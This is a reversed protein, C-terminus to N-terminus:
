CSDGYHTNIEDDCICPYHKLDKKLYEMTFKGMHTNEVVTCKKTKTTEGEYVNTKAYVPCETFYYSEFNRGKYDPNIPIYYNNTVTNPRGKLPDDENPNADPASDQCQFYTEDLTSTYVTVEKGNDDTTTTSKYSYVKTEVKYTCGKGVITDVTNGKADTASSLDSSMRLEYETSM